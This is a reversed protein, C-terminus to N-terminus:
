RVRELTVCVLAVLNQSNMVVFDRRMAYHCRDQWDFRGLKAAVKGVYHWFIAQLGHLGFKEVVRFGARQFESIADSASVYAGNAARNEALFAALPGTTILHIRGNERLSAVCSEIAFENVLPMVVGLDTVPKGLAFSGAAGFTLMKLGCLRQEMEAKHFGDVTFCASLAPKFALRTALWDFAYQYALGPRVRPALALNNM